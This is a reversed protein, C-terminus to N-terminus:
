GCGFLFFPNGELCELMWEDVYWRIMWFGDLLCHCMWFHGGRLVLRLCVSGGGTFSDCTATKGFSTFPAGEQLFGRFRTGVACSILVWWFCISKSAKPLHYTFTNRIIHRKSLNNWAEVQRSQLSIMMLPPTRTHTTGENDCWYTEFMLLLGSLFFFLCIGVEWNILDDQCM